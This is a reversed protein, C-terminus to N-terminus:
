SYETFIQALCFAMKANGKPHRLNIRRTAEHPQNKVPMVAVATTIKAFYPCLFPPGQRQALPGRSFVM